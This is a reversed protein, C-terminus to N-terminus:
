RKSAARLWRSLRRARSALPTITRKWNETKRSMPTKSKTKACCVGSSAGALSASRMRGSKRSRSIGVPEGAQQESRDDGDGHGVGAARQIGQGGAADEIKGRQAAAASWLDPLHRESMRRERRMVRKQPSTRMAKPKTVHPGSRSAPRVTADSGKPLKSPRKRSPVSLDDSRVGGARQVAHERSKSVMRQTHRECSDGERPVDQDSCSPTLTEPAARM